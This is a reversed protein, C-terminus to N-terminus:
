QRHPELLCDFDEYEVVYSLERGSLDRALLSGSIRKCNMEYTVGKKWPLTERQGSWPLKRSPMESSPIGSRGSMLVPIAAPAEIAGAVILSRLWDRASLRLAYRSLTRLRGFRCKAVWCVTVRTRKPVSATSSSELRGALPRLLANPTSTLPKLSKSSPNLVLLATRLM